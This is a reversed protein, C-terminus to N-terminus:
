EDDGDDDESPEEDFVGAAAGQKEVEKMLDGLYAANSTDSMAWGGLRRAVLEGIDGDVASLAEQMEKTELSMVFMQAVAAPPSKSRIAAELRDVANGSPEAAQPLPQQQVQQMQQQQPFQTVQAPATRTQAPLQPPVGMATKQQAQYGEMLATLAKVGQKVAKLAPHEPQAGGNLNLDAMSHMMNMTMDTMSSMAEIMHTSAAPDPKNKEMTAVMRDLVKEVAPDVSPRSLLMTLMQQHQAAAADQQRQLQATMDAAQKAMALKSENQSQIFQAAIPSIAALIPAWTEMMDKKPAAASLKAELLKLNTESERRISELEMRHKEDALEREKKAVAEAQERDRRANLEIRERDERAARDFYDRQAAALREKERELHALEASFGVGLIGGGSAVPGTNAASSGPLPSASWPPSISYSPSQPVPQPNDNATPWMLSAPGNWGTSKVVEPDVPKPPCTDIPVSVQKLSGLSTSPEKEHYAGLLFVPGGGAARPLWTEPHQMHIVRADTFTAVAEPTAGASRKRFVKIWFSDGDAKARENLLAITEPESLIKTDAM